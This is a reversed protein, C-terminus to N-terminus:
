KVKFLTGSETISTVINKKDFFTSIMYSKELQENQYDQYIFDWRNLDFMYQTLPHGIVFTVQDKTMGVKLQKFQSETIYNGQDVEMMYPFHWQSFNVGSCAILGALVVSLVVLKYWNIM